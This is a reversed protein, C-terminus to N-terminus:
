KKLAEAFASLEDVRRASKPPQTRALAAAGLREVLVAVAARALASRDRADGVGFGRLLTRCFPLLEADSVLPREGKEATMRALVESMPAALRAVARDVRYRAIVPDKETAEADRGLQAVELDKDLLAIPASLAGVLMQAKADADGDLQAALSAATQAREEAARVLRAEEAELARAVGLLSEAIKLAKRRLAREKLEDSRGILQTDMLEQVRAWGSRALAAEDGLKGQLALRASLALVGSWSALGTEALGEDVTALVKAIQEDNFRDAKNVLLQVPVRAAKAEDLIRKETQKMAQGADLLWIVADAEDFAGRAAATHRPDPANFGPTDLIEVRTLSALPLLIEV